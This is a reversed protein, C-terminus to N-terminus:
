CASFSRTKKLDGRKKLKRKLKHDASSAYNGCRMRERDIARWQAQMEWTYNIGAHDFLRMMLYETGANFKVVALNVALSTELPSVFQEKPALSWIVHNVSENANQTTANQCSELLNIDSLRNFIPKLVDLIEQCFPWKIAKHTNQGTSIDRQYSCWSKSGPPCRQHNPNDPTSSYHDLIAWTAESM